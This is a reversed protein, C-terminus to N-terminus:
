SAIPKTLSAIRYPTTLNAKVKKELDSYGFGKSYIIENEHTIAVSLGPLFCQKILDKLGKEFERINNELNM